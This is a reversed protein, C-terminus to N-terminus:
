YSVPSYFAYNNKKDHKIKYMAKDAFKILDEANNGDDPCISIGISATVKCEKNEIIFPIKISDLIKSAILAADNNTKINRIIVAFEDGGIRAITDSERILKKLRGTLENLLIDGTAHGYRDNVPKFGDLDIYLIAAKHNYRKADNIVQNIRDYLLVRNPLGTLADHHALIKLNHELIKRQTIDTFIGVYNTTNGFDNKISSMSLWVPYIEGSKRRNSIETAFTTGCKVEDFITEFRNVEYVGAAMFSILKDKVEEFEYGTIDTFSKNIEIIKFNLDTIFIGEMASEMVKAIMRVRDQAKVRKTVDRFSVLNCPEEQWKIPKSMTEFYLKEGNTTEIEIEHPEKPCSILQCKAYFPTDVIDKKTTNIIDSMAKNIFRVICKDNLVVMGDSLNDILSRLQEENEQVNVVAEHYLMRLKHREISYLLTKDLFGKTIDKKLVYDQAGKNISQIAWKEDDYGTLVVIPIHMFERAIEEITYPYNSDPLSLDLLIIEIDNQNLISKAEALTYANVINFSCKDSNKLYEKILVAEAKNDEVILLNIIRKKM